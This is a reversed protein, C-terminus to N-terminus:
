ALLANTMTKYSSNSMAGNHKRNHPNNLFLEALLSTRKLYSLRQCRAAITFAKPNSYLITIM